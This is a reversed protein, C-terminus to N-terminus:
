NTVQMHMQQEWPVLMSVKISAMTVSASTWSIRPSGVPRASATTISDLTSLPLPYSM